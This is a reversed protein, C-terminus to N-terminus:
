HQLAHVMCQDSESDKERELFKSHGTPAFCCVISFIISIYLLSSFYLYICISSLVSFLVIFIYFYVTTVCSHVSIYVRRPFDITMKNCECSVLHAGVSAWSQFAVELNKMRFDSDYHTYIYCMKSCTPTCGLPIILAPFVM